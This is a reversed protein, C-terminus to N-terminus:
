GMLSETRHSGHYCQGSGTGGCWRQWSLTDLWKAPMTSTWLLTKPQSTCRLSPSVLTDGASKCPTATTSASITEQVIPLCAFVKPLSSRTHALTGYNPRFLRSLLLVQFPSTVVLSEKERGRASQDSIRGGRGGGGAACVCVCVSACVCV